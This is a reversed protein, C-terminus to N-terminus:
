RQWSRHRPLGRPGGQSVALVLGTAVHSEPGRLVGSALPHPRGSPLVLLPGRESPAPLGLQHSHAFVASATGLWLGGQHAGHLCFRCLPVSTMGANKGRPWGLKEFSPRWPWCSVLSHNGAFSAVALGCPGAGEPTVSGTPLGHWAWRARATLGPKLLEWVGHCETLRPNGTVVM